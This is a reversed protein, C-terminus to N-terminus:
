APPARPHPLRRAAGYNYHGFIWSRHTEGTSDYTGCPCVHKSHACSQAAMWRSHRVGPFSRRPSPRSVSGRFRPGAGRKFAFSSAHPDCNGLFLDQRSIALSGRRRSDRQCQLRQNSSCTECRIRSRVGPQDRARRTTDIRRDCCRDGRGTRTRAGWSGLRRRDLAFAETSYGM